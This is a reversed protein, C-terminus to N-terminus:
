ECRYSFTLGLTARCTASWCPGIFAVFIISVIAVAVSIQVLSWSAPGSVGGDLQAEPFGIMRVGDVSGMRLVEAVSRSLTRSYGDPTETAFNGLCTACAPNCATGPGAVCGAFAAYDELDVDTDGDCDFPLCELVAAVGGGSFCELFDGFDRVDVDADCDSDGLCGTGMSEFVVRIVFDGSMGAACPDLWQATTSNYVLNTDVQCGDADTTLHGSSTSVPQGLDNVYEIGVTFPGQNVTWGLGATSFENMYGATMLAGEATYLPSGPAPGGSGYLHVHALVQTTPDAQSRWFVQVSKIELPFLSCPIDFVAAGIDGDVFGAQVFGNQGEDLTDNQWTFQQAQLVDAFLVVVTLICCHIRMMAGWWTRAEWSNGRLVTTPFSPGSLNM